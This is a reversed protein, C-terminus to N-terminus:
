HRAAACLLTIIQETPLADHENPSEGRWRLLVHVVQEMLLLEGTEIWEAEVALMPPLTALEYRCLCTVERHVLAKHVECRCARTMGLQMDEEGHHVHACVGVGWGSVHLM